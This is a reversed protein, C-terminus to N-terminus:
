PLLWSLGVATISRYSGAEMAWSGVAEFSVPRGGADVVRKAESFDIKVRDLEFTDKDYPILWVSGTVRYAQVSDPPTLTVRYLM